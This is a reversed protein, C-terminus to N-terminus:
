LWCRECLFTVADLILLVLLTEFTVILGAPGTVLRPQRNSWPRPKANGDVVAIMSVLGARTWQKGLPRPGFGNQLKKLKQQPTSM